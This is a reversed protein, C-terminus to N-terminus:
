FYDSHITSTTSLNVGRAIMVMGQSAWSPDAPRDFESAALSAAILVLPEEAYGPIDHSSWRLLGETGIAYQAARLKEVAKVRDAASPPENAALIGLKQLVRTALRNLSTAM